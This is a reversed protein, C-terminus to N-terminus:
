KLHNNKFFTNYTVNREKPFELLKKTPHQADSLLGKDPLVEPTSLWFVGLFNAMPKFLCKELSSMCIALPYIFFAQCQWDDPFHLDFWFSIDDWVHWFSKKKKKLCRLTQLATSFNVSETYKDVNFTYIKNIFSHM